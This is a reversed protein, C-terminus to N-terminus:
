GLGLCASDRDNFADKDNNGSLGSTNKNSM